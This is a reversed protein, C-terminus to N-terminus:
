KYFRTTEKFKDVWSTLSVKHDDPHFIEEMMVLKKANPKQKGEM